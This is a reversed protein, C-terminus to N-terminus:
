FASSRRSRHRSTVAIALFAVGQVLSAALLRARASALTLETFLSTVALAFTLLGLAALAVSMANAGILQRLRLAEAFQFLGLVSTLMAMVGSFTVMTVAFYPIGPSSYILGAACLRVLADCAAVAAIGGHWHAGLVLVVLILALVGDVAVYAGFGRLMQPFGARGYQLLFAGFGLSVICRAVLTLQLMTVATKSHHGALPPVVGKGAGSRSRGSSGHNPAVSGAM